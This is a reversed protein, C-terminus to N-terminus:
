FYENVFKITPFIFRQLDLAVAVILVQSEDTFAAIKLSLQLIFVSFFLFPIGTYCYHNDQLTYERRQYCLM